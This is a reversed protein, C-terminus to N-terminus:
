GRAAAAPRPLTLTGAPAAILALEPRRRAFIGVTVVGPLAEITHEMQAPEDLQLGHVDLIPNGNDTLYNERWVPHGGLAVLRRAVFSRAYSVVEIPLPFEGLREVRKGTDAICIFRESLEALVKERTLAGGGGKILNLEPDIEDAGDIYVPLRDIDALELVPLRRARLLRESAASAAIVGKVPLMSRALVDIFAEVTSGSGVGVIPHEEVEALAAEAARQKLAQQDM